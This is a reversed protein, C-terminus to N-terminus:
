YLACIGLQFYDFLIHFLDVCIDYCNVFTVEDLCLLFYLLNDICICIQYLIPIINLISFHISEFIHIQTLETRMKFLKLTFNHELILNLFIILKLFQLFRNLNGYQSFIDIGIHIRISIFLHLGLIVLTHGIVILLLSIWGRFNLEFM